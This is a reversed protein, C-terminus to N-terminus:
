FGPLGVAKPYLVGSFAIEAAGRLYVQGGELGVGLVEGGTTTVDVDQGALGLAHAIVASACAGTGCAYTEDEVGREYTRLVLHGSDKVTVFNANTGKPAFAEHFRIARGLRKVDVLSVDDFFVVAHPVGTNVFHVTLKQGDVDLEMGTKLDVAPTLRVRVQGDDLVQAEVGGADTGLVHKKSAFGLLSGLKSACRAGNGCMEARSGDANYFHWVYDASVGAPSAELFILGDAGVGFCKRCVKRAWEAMDAVPVKYERNDIIVFDNGCGQMKHFAVGGGLNFDCAM